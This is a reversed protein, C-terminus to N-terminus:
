RSTERELAMNPEAKEEMEEAIECSLERLAACSLKERARCYNGTDEFSDSCRAQSVCGRTSRSSPM